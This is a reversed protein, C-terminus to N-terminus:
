LSSCGWSSPLHNSLSISSGIFFCFVTILLNKELDFLHLTFSTQSSLIALMLTLTSNLFLIFSSSYGSIILSSFLLSLFQAPKILFFFWSTKFTIEGPAWVAPLLNCNGSLFSYKLSCIDYSFRSCFPVQHYCYHHSQFRIVCDSLQLSTNANNPWAFLCTLKVLLSTKFGSIIVSYTGSNGFNSFVYLITWIQSVFKFIVVVSASTPAEKSTTLSTVSITSTTVMSSSTAELSFSTSTGAFNALVISSSIYLCELYM